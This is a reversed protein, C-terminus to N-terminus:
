KFTQFMRSFSESVQQKTRQAEGDPSVVSSVSLPIPAAQVLSSLLLGGFIVKNM